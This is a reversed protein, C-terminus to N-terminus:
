FQVFSSNFTKLIIYDSSNFVNHLIITHNKDNYFRYFRKHDKHFKLEIINNKIENNSPNFLVQKKIPYLVYYKGLLHFTTCVKLLTCWYFFLTKM